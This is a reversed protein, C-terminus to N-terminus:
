YERYMELLTGCTKLCRMYASHRRSYWYRQFNDSPAYQDFYEDYYWHEPHDTVDGYLMGAQRAAHYERTISYEERIIAATNVAYLGDYLAMIILWFDMPMDCKNPFKTLVAYTVLVKLISFVVAIWYIHVLDTNMARDLDEFLIQSV